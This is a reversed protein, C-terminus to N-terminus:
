FEISKITERQIRERKKDILVVCTNKTVSILEGKLMDGNKLYITQLAKPQTYRGGKKMQVSLTTSGGAFTSLEVEWNLRNGNVSLEGHEVDASIINFPFAMQYKWSIGDLMTNMMSADPAMPSNKEKGILKVFTWVGNEEMFTMNGEFFPFKQTDLEKFNDLSSFGLSVNIYQSEGEEYQNSNKISFGEVESLNNVINEESFSADNKSMELPIGITMELTGSGDKKLTLVEDYELCGTIISLCLILLSQLM